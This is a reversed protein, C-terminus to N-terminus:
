RSRGQSMRMALAIAEDAVDQGRLNLEAHYGDVSEALGLTVADYAGKGHPAGVMAVRGGNQRAHVLAAVVIPGPRKTM